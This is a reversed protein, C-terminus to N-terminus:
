LEPKEDFLVYHEVVPPAALFEGLLGVYRSYRDTGRFNQLHAERSEWEVMGVFRAPSEVGRFMRASLCGPTGTLIAQAEVYRAAFDDESGERIDIFAIERIM